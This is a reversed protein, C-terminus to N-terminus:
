AQVRSVAKVRVVPRYWNIGIEKAKPDGQPDYEGIIWRPKGGLRIFAPWYAACHKRWRKGPTTETPLSTSYENMRQFEHLPLVLPPLGAVFTDLKKQEDACLEEQTTTM